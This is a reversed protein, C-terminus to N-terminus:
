ETNDIKELLDVIKKSAEPAALSRAAAGMRAARAPDSLIESITMALKEPTLQSETIVVAGGAKEVVRANLEQHNNTAAAFPVLVASRGVAALEGITMAGARSVVLDAAAIEGVIPDLYPVVRAGSFASTRYAQRVVELEKPGTQHVIQVRDKLRALFLLAGTMAENLIHSGQSGGFILLRQRNDTTPQRKAEFFEKRIPTGTVVADARKMRPGADAFAVAVAKVFKALMRNTLGPFANQEHIATPIGHMRAALLVPGSSYGGVGLVVSPNHKGVV